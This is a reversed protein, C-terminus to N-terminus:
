RIIHLCHSKFLCARADPSISNDHGEAIPLPHRSSLHLFCPVRSSDFHFASPSCSSIYSCVYMCVYTLYTHTIRRMSNAPESLRQPVIGNRVSITSRWRAESVPGTSHSENNNSRGDLHFLFRLRGCVTRSWPPFGPAAPPPLSAQYHPAANVVTLLNGKDVGLGLWGAWREEQSGLIEKCRTESEEVGVHKTLMETSDQRRGGAETSGERVRDFLFLYLVLILPPSQSPAGQWPLFPEGFLGHDASQSCSYDQRHFYQWLIPLMVAKQKPGM